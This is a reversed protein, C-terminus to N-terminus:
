SRRCMYRALEPIPVISRNKGIIKRPLPNNVKKFSAYVTRVDVGLAEATQSVSLAMVGPYLRHLFELNERYGDLEM